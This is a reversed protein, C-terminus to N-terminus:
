DVATGGALRTAWAVRPPRERKVMENEEEVGPAPEGGMAAHQPDTEASCLVFGSLVNNPAPLDDIRSRGGCGEFGKGSLRERQFRWRAAHYM